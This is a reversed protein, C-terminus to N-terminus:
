VISSYKTIVNEVGCRIVVNCCDVSNVIIESVEFVQGDIEIEEQVLSVGIHYSVDFVGYRIATDEGEERRERAREEGLFFVTISFLCQLRLFYM